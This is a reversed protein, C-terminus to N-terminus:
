RWQTKRFRCRRLLLVLGATVWFRQFLVVRIVDVFFGYTGAFVGDFPLRAPVSFNEASQRLREVHAKVLRPVQTTLSM